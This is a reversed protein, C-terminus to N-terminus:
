VNINLQGTCRQPVPQQLIHSCSHVRTSPRVRVQDGRATRQTHREELGGVRSRCCTTSLVWYYVLCNWYWLLWPQSLWFYFTSPHYQKNTVASYSNIVWGRKGCGLSLFVWHIVQIWFPLIANSFRFKQPSPDLGRLRSYVIKCQRVACSQAGSVVKLIKTKVFTRIRHM